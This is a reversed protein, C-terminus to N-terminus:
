HESKISSIHNTIPHIIKTISHSSFIFFKAPLINAATGYEQLRRWSTKIDDNRARKIGRSNNHQAGLFWGMIAPSTGANMKVAANPIVFPNDPLRGM